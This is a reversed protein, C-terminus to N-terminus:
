NIKKVKMILSEYGVIEVNQGTEITENEINRAQWREDYISIVGSENTINEIAKATKGVYKEEMGTKEENPNKKQFIPRLIFIFSLSLISFIITLGFISKYFLSIIACIAAAIAFNIFFMTPIFIEILLFVIGIGLIIQWM